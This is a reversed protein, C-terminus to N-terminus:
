GAEPLDSHHRQHDEPATALRETLWGLVYERQDHTLKELEARLRPDLGTKPPSELRSLQGPPWKVAKELRTRTLANPWKEGSEANHVTRIAVGAREAVQQQTMGLEGRRAAFAAAAMQRRRQKDDAM